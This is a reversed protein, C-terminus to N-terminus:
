NNRLIRLEVRQNAQNAAETTAAVLPQTKGYGREKLRSGEIGKTTLYSIIAKARAVSLQVCYEHSPVMNTHGGVEVMITPHILLYKAIDDLYAYSSADLVVADTAFQLHHTRIVSGVPLVFESSSKALVQEMTFVSPSVKPANSEIIVRKVIPKEEKEAVWKPLAETTIRVEDGLSYDNVVEDLVKADPIGVKTYITTKNAFLPDTRTAIVSAYKNQELALETQGSMNASSAVIIIFCCFLSYSKNKM